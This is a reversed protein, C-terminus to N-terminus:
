APVSHHRLLFLLDARQLSYFISIFYM